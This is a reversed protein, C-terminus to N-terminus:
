PQAAARTAAPISNPEVSPAPQYPPMGPLVIDPYYECNSQWIPNEQPTGNAIALFAQRYHPNFATIAIGFLLAFALMRAIKSAGQEM